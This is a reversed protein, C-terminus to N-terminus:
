RFPYSELWTHVKEPLANGEDFFLKERMPNPGTVVIRCYRTNIDVWIKWDEEPPRNGIGARIVTELNKNLTPALTQGFEVSIAM